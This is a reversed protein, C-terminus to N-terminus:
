GAVGAGARGRIAKLAGRAANLLFQFGILSFGVPVVLAATSQRVGPFLVASPDLGVTLFTRGALVLFGCVVVAFLDALVRAWRRPAQPLFRTLVDIRFHRGKAAARGAGLLGVVIVLHRGAIDGWPISAHFVERLLIQTVSLLLMVAFAAVLVVTVVSSLVRNILALARM